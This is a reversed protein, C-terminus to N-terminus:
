EYPGGNLIAKCKKLALRGLERDATIEEATRNDPPPQWVPKGLEAFSPSRLVEGTGNCQYCDGFEKFKGSGGCKGCKTKQTM